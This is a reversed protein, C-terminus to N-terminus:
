EEDLCYPLPLISWVQDPQATLRLQVDDDLNNPLVMLGMAHNDAFQYVNLLRGAGRWNEGVSRELEIPNDLSLVDATAGSVIRMERKNM